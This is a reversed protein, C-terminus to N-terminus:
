IKHKFLVCRIQKNDYVRTYSAGTELDNRTPHGSTGDGTSITASGSYKVGRLHQVFHRRNILVDYGSLSNRDTEVPMRVEGEAYAVAGAGFLYTPYVTSTPTLSDDVIVRKGQYTQFYSGDSGRATAILDLKVLAAMVASHMAVATLSTYADGLKFSADAFTSANIVSKAASLGSIDHINGTMDTSGGSAAFAGKLSSLLRAQQVRAWFGAVMDGVAKMPDDGSLAYALDNAGWAKGLAQLVAVDQGATIANVTLSKQDSLVEETSGLDNWFPMNVSEGGARLGVQIRPDVEVVGSQVFANLEATRNQVYPVFVEPVIVNSIRTEAM